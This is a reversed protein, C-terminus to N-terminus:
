RLLRGSGFGGLRAGGFGGSLGGGLSGGLRREDSTNVGLYELLTLIRNFRSSELNLGFFDRDHDFPL